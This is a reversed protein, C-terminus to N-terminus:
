FCIISNIITIFGNIRTVYRANHLRCTDSSLAILRWCHLCGRVVWRPFQFTPIVLVHRTGPSSPANSSTLKSSTTQPVFAAARHHASRTVIPASSSSSKLPRRGRRNHVYDRYHNAVEHQWRGVQGADVPRYLKRRWRSMPPGRSVKATATTATATTLPRRDTSARVNLTLHFGTCMLM